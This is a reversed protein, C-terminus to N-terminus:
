IIDSGFRPITQPQQGFRALQALGMSSPHAVVEISASAQVKVSGVRYKASKPRFISDQLMSRGGGGRGRGVSPCGCAWIGKIAKRYVIRECDFHKPCGRVDTCQLKQGLCRPKFLPTCTKKKSSCLGQGSFLKKRCQCLPWTMCNRNMYYNINM